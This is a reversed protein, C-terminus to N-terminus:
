GSRAATQTLLPIPDVFNLDFRCAENGLGFAAAMLQSFYLVPIQAFETYHQKIEEQVNDLNFACLPCSTVVAEAGAQQARSLIEHVLDRVTERNTVTQYSGCCVKKYPSDVTTAGLASVLDELISPEEPDDIGAEAPRLLMCGYYPFVNLHKLPSKAKERVKDFGLEKLVELFHTVVVRGEYDEERDMFGNIKKLDEPNEQMRLNSRKLTNFCMSCLTVLRHEDKSGSEGIMEQARVLIRVPAVHHILDDSTLSFVTGCCNWRPIEVLEIGLEQAVALTSEEFNLASAKLTCGPFFPIGM